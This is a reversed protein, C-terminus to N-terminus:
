KKASKELEAAALEKEVAQFASYIKHFAAYYEKSKGKFEANVAVQLTVLEAVMLPAVMAVKPIALSIAANLGKQTRRGSRDILDAFTLEEGNECKNKAENEAALMSQHYFKQGKEGDGITAGTIGWAVLLEACNEPADTVTVSLTINTSDSKEATTVLLTKM